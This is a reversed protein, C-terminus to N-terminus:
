VSQQTALYEAVAPRWLSSPAGTRFTEAHPAPISLTNILNGNLPNAAVRVATAHEGPDTSRGGLASFFIVVAPSLDRVLSALPYRSLCLRQLKPTVRDASTKLTAKDDADWTAGSPVGGLQCKAANTYALHTSDLGASELLGRLHKFITWGAYGKVYVARSRILYEDPSVSGARFGRTVNVLEDRADEGVDGSDFERHINAIALVGRGPRFNSGLYGPWRLDDGDICFRPYTAGIANCEKIHEDDSLLRRAYDLWLEETETTVSKREALSVHRPLEPRSQEAQQPETKVLGTNAGM